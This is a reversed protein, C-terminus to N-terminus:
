IIQHHVAVRNIPNSLTFRTLMFEPHGFQLLEISSKGPTLQHLEFDWGRISDSFEELNLFQQDAILDWDFVKSNCLTNM